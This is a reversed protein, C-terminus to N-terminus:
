ALEKYFTLSANCLLRSFLAVTCGVDCPLTAVSNFHPSYEVIANNRNKQRLTGTYFCLFAITIQFFIENILM